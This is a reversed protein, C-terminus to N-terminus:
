FPYIRGAGQNMCLNVLEWRTCSKGCSKLRKKEAKKLIFNLQTDWELGQREVIKNSIIEVSRSLLFEINNMEIVIYNM